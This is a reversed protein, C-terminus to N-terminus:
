ARGDTGRDGAAPEPDATPTGGSETTHRGDSDYRLGLDDARANDAAQETDIVDADEGRESVVASRSTFGARIAKKDAEVDQVPHLYPWGHPMWKVATWERVRAAYDAPPIPVAGSLVARDLWARWIPRCFQYAVVHHQWAQVRRRFEHLIVRVTRDNVGSMDGTIVEYPVGTAASVAFLQQKMFAPYGSGADPPESFTVEEGPALEQFIGPEFQLTPLDSVDEVAEGTLPHVTSEELTQAPRTVFAVFLNALQQRLLTADDFKDLEHLKILAQTLHPLGRIQGARWPEFLHSALEAPVRRLQGVDIDQLDGPRSAHFWYAVRKGIRSFEVGARIRNGTTSLQNLTIPCFEGELIQIQLPVTLGDQPLRPRLRVFADGGELWSRVAQAQQGFWDLLGDADSEDTWALWLQQIRTRIEPDPAQSLPNIGTGIINSVLKDIIGKGYGDNRVAARSRDRLTTLYNLSDNAYTTPARWGTTRRTGTSAGDYLNVVRARTPSVRASSVRAETDLTLRLQSSGRRAM